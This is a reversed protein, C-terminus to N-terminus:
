IERGEGTYLCCDVAPRWLQQSNRLVLVMDRGCPLTECNEKGVKLEYIREAGDEM